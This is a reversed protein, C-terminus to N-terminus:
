LHFESQHHMVVVAEFPRLPFSQSRVARLTPYNTLLEEGDKWWAAIEQPLTWEQEIDSFSVAVIARTNHHIRQYCIVWPHNQAVLQFRGYVLVDKHQKRLQLVRRWFSFVSQSDSLQAEVNYEVYDDNVRM